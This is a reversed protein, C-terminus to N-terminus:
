KVRGGLRRKAVTTTRIRTINSRPREALQLVLYPQLDHLYPAPFSLSSLGGKGPKGGCLLVLQKM